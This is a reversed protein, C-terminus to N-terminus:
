CDASAPFPYEDPPLTTGISGTIAAFLDPRLWIWETSIDNVQLPPVTSCIPNASDLSLLTIDFDPGEIIRLPCQSSVTPSAGSPRANSARPSLWRPARVKAELKKGRITIERLFEYVRAAKNSYQDINDDKHLAVTVKEIFDAYAYEPVKSVGPPPREGYSAPYEPGLSM